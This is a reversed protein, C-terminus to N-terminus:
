ESLLRPLDLLLAVRGDRMEAAGAVGFWRGGHSGLNRVLVRQNETISDVLLGVRNLNPRESVTQPLECIVLFANGTKKEAPSDGLLTGLDVIRITKDGVRMQLGAESSGLENREVQRYSSIYTRDVLYRHDGSAVVM